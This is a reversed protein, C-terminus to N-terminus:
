KKKGKKKCKKAAAAGKKGKKKKKKCKKKKKPTAPPTAPPTDTSPPIAVEVSGIDSGDGGAANATGPQDAVRALGRQDTTVGAAALGRDIAPGALAPLHTQTPGGNAALPGLQPDQGVIASDAPNQPVPADGPAEILSFALQFAGGGSTDARDLDQPAASATNDAVLTGNLPVTASTPGGGTDYAGLYLGGGSVAADNGAITSNALEISSGVGLQAEDPEAAVSIGAGVGATNGSVTSGVLDFTANELTSGFAIGGGDAAAGADNGSLTSDAVQVVSTDPGDFAQNYFEYFYIGGGSSAADNGSVTSRTITTDAGGGLYKGPPGPAPVLDQTLYIGGGLDATNGTVTSDTLTLPAYKANGSIAGGGLDATNGTLESGTVVMTFHGSIAGGDGETAENSDLISDEIEVPGESGVAGGGDPGSATSSTIRSREFRAIGVGGGRYVAGGFAAFGDALTLDSVTVNSDGTFNFIRSDGATPTGSSDDADGSITLVDRGPGDIALSQVGSHALEGQTLRITGTVSSAFTITDAEANATAAAMADRLTCDSTAPVLPDCTDAPADATTNVEFPAAQAAAPSLAFAGAAVSVAFGARRMRKAARRRVTEARREHERRFSRESM